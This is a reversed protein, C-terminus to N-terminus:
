YIQLSLMADAGEFGEDDDDDENNAYEKEDM